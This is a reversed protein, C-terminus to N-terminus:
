RRMSTPPAACRASRIDSLTPAMKGWSGNVYIAGGAARCRRKLVEFRDMAEFLADTRQYEVLERDVPTTACGATMAIALVMAPVKEWLPAATKGASQKSVPRM